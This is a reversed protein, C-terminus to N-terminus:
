ENEEMNRAIIRDLLIHEIQEKHTASLDEFAFGVLLAENDMRVWAIHAAIEDVRDESDPWRIHLVVPEGVVLKEASGDKVVVGVGGSSLDCIEALIMEEKLKIHIAFHADERIQRLPLDSNVFKKLESEFDM